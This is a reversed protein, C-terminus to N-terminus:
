RGDARRRMKECDNGERIALRITSPESTELSPFLNALTRDDDCGYAAPMVTGDGQSPEIRPYRTIKGRHGVALHFYCIGAPIVLTLFLLIPLIVLLPLDQPGKGADYNHWDQGLDLQTHPM